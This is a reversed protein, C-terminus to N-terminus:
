VAAALALRNAGSIILSIGVLISIIMVSDGPWHFLILFALLLTIIGDFLWWGWGALPRLSLSGIISLIGQLLFLWGLWFALAALGAAPHVLMYVGVALYLVGLLVKWLRNDSGSYASIVEAVGGFILGWAVWLTAFLAAMFPAALAVLGGIILLVGAAIAWGRVARVTGAVGQGPGAM